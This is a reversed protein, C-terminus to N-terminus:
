TECDLMDVTFDNVNAYEGFACRFLYTKLASRFADVTSISRLKFPLSNWIKPASYSFAGKSKSCRPERQEQLLFFDNDSRVAKSQPHRITLLDTLYQPAINNICKYALIAIKFKIRYRVPLFHLKKLLPSIPQWREKGKLGFIFRVAANQINQLKQLQFENMGFYTANCNDIFYHIYSHVLQIKLSKTLKSGLKGINRMNIYCTKSIKSLQVSLDLHQDFWYGLNKASASREIICDDLNFNNRPHVASYPSYIEVIVTKTDNMKLFNDAMWIRIDAFCMKLDNIVQDIDHKPDFQLYIQTDDAYMHISFNYKKALLQIGKTYLIFLLPGLISGQPVGITLPAEKSLSGNINVKYSRDSLYSTIWSIVNEGFHYVKQLRNILLQHNITDFAASLDLLMLIVHSQKDLAM